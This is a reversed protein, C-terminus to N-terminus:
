HKIILQLKLIGRILLYILKLSWYKREWFKIIFYIIESIPVLRNYLGIKAPWLQDELVSNVTCALM